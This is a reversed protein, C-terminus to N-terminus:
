KGAQWAMGSATRSSYARRVPPFRPIEDLALWPYQILLPSSAPRLSTAESVLLFTAIVNPDFAADSSSSSSSPPPIYKPSSALARPNFIRSEAGSSLTFFFAGTDDEPRLLGLADDVSL